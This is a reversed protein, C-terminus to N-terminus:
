QAIACGGNDVILRTTKVLAPTSKITVKGFEGTGASTTLIV